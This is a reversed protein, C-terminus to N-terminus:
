GPRGAPDDGALDDGPPDDNAALPVRLYVTTAKGPESEVDLTGGVLEARERM